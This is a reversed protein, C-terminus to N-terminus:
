FKGLNIQSFPIIFWVGNENQQINNYDIYSCIINYYM